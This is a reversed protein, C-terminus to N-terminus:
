IVSYPSFKATHKLQRPSTGKQSSCPPICTIEPRIETGNPAASSPPKSVPMESARPAFIISWLPGNTPSTPTTSNAALATTGTTPTGTLAKRAISTPMSPWETKPNSSTSSRIPRPGDSKADWWLAELAATLGAPPAPDSLSARFADPTMPINYCEKALRRTPAGAPFLFVPLPRLLNGEPIVSLFALAFAFTHASRRASLPLARGSM